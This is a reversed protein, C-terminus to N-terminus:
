QAAPTADEKPPVAPPAVPAAAAVAKKIAPNARYPRYLPDGVLAMRWSTFPMTRWYCEALTLEGQLLLAFFEEPRPFSMLYPESTPGITACVGDELLKKCWVQSKPDKLTTCESSALHYAVSGPKWNFADKYKGVSYWGCYLAADPCAGEKFLDAKSDVIVDLDTQDGIGKATLMLARDYDEYSGPPSTPSDVKALGRGDIYVKGTLGAKETAVSDDIMRKVIPLTPGDLRSVMFTRHTDRLMSNDYGPRLYNPQWRLLEYNDPWMVLALENDFGAGTDNAEAVGIQEDLWAISALLGGNQELVSLLLADRDISPPQGDLAGKLEAYATARGRLVDFQSRLEAPPDPTKALQQEMSQLIVRPGGAALALQQLRAAGANRENPESLSSIRKQAAQLEAELEAQRKAVETQPPAGAAPVPKDVVLGDPALKHLQDAIQGLLKLRNAREGRLYTRYRVSEADENKDAANVHLPVGWTTVLCKLQSKPDNELIWKQIEPRVSWKWTKHDMQEGKPVVVSCINAEPIGRQKAYYKALGESERDGSAAIIAVENPKLEAWSIQPACALCSFISLVSLCFHRM